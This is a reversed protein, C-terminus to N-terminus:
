TGKRSPHHRVTCPVWPMSNSSTSTSRAPWNPTCWAYTAILRALDADPNSSRPQGVAHGRASAFTRKGTSSPPPASHVMVKVCTDTPQHVRHLHQCEVVTHCLLVFRRPRPHVRGRLWHAATVALMKLFFRDTRQATTTTTTAKTTTTAAAATTVMTPATPATRTPMM